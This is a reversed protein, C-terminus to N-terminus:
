ARPGDVGNEFPQSCVSSTAVLALTLFVIWNTLFLMTRLDLAVVFRYSWLAVELFGLGVAWVLRRPHRGITAGIWLVFAGGVIIVLLLWSDATREILALAGVALSALGLIAMFAGIFGVLLSRLSPPRKRDLVM